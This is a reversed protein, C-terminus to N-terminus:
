RRRDVQANKSKSKSEGRDAREGGVRDTWGFCGFDLVCVVGCGRQMSSRQQQM